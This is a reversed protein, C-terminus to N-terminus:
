CSFFRFRTRIISYKTSTALSHILM